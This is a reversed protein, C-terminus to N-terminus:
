WLFAGRADRPRYRGDITMRPGYHTGMATRAQGGPSPPRLTRAFANPDSGARSETAPTNDQVNYALGDVRLGARVKVWSLPVVALDLWGAADMARIKADVITDLVTQNSGINRQSQNIWDNRASVGAEISDHESIWHIAHRFHGTLGLTTSENILQTTDGNTPDILYGTYNQKLELGRQVAYPTIAWDSNEGVGRYETVLQYRSSFGGQDVGYTGFRSIRGSELDRLSVVGPSDFKGAYGTALVRLQGDGLPFVQQAIASTRSAARSPGFGDTSQAEFAAFSGPAANERHYALFVRREGFSGTTCKATIGPERYGLDYRITGAVAFDGQEPSYNGPLVTIRSVVEPMVFHLDAYGQGHINSVENVPAGGVWFELDQGHVADFGRYFVQYAKGQGSHQTIFVGPVVQLLDGGTRHPAAQIVDQGRTTESASRPPTTREGIVRVEQHEDEGHGLPTVPEIAPVSSEAEKTVAARPVVRPEIEATAAPAAPVEARHEARFRVVARVKSAVAVGESRAPAFVWRHAAAIAASDFDAGLSAEVEADTVVGESSITLIVPVVVDRETSVGPPWTPAPEELPVPKELEHGGAVAPWLAVSSTLLLGVRWSWQSVFGLSLSACPLVFM